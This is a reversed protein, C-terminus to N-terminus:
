KFGWLQLHALALVRLDENEPKEGAIQHFAQVMALCVPDVTPPPPSELILKLKSRFCEEYRRTFRYGYPSPGGEVDDDPEIIHFKSLRLISRWTERDERETM